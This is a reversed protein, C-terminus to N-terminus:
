KIAGIKRLHSWGLFLKKHIPSNINNFSREFEMSGNDYKIYIDIDAESIEKCGFGNDNVCRLINDKTIFENLLTYKEMEISGMVSGDWDILVSQGGIVIGVQKITKEKM